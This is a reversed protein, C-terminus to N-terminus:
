FNELRRDSGGVEFVGFSSRDCLRSALSSGYREAIGSPTLNSTVITPLLESHRYDVLEFLKEIGYDTNRIKDLDDIILYKIEKAQKYAEEIMEPISAARLFLVQKGRSAMTKGCAVAITTKGTGAEESFFYLGFPNPKSHECWKVAADIAKKNQPCTKIRHWEVEEFRKPLGIFYNRFDITEKTKECECEGRWYGFCLVSDISNIKIKDPNKLLEKRKDLLFKPLREPDVTVWEVQVKKGCNLCTRLSKTGNKIELPSQIM